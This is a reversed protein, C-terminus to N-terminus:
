GKLLARVRAYNRQVKAIYSARKAPSIANYAGVAKWLTGHQQIKKSLIWAGVYINTCAGKLKERHIGMEALQPLWRTNIQMLGVDHTGDANTPGVANPDFASETKAIAILMHKDVGFREAAATFCPDFPSWAHSAPFDTPTPAAKLQAAQQAGAAGALTTSLLLSAWGKM